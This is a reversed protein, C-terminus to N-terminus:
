TLRYKDIYPNNNRNSINAQKSGSNNNIINNNIMNSQKNNNNNSQKTMISILNSLLNNTSKIQDRINDNSEVVDKNINNINTLISDKITKEITTRNTQNTKGIPSIVKNNKIFEPNNEGVIVTGKNPIDGGMARPTIQSTNNNVINQESSEQIIQSKVPSTPLRQALKVLTDTGGYQTTLLNISNSLAIKEDQTLESRKALDEIKTVITSFQNLSKTVDDTSKVGIATGGVKKAGAADYIPKFGAETLGLAVAKTLSKTYQEDNSSMYLKRGYKGKINQETAKTQEFEPFGASKIYEKEYASPKIGEKELKGIVRIIETKLPLKIAEENALKYKEEKTLSKGSAQKAKIDKIENSVNELTKTTTDLGWVLTQNVVENGSLFSDSESLLNQFKSNKLLEKNSESQKKFDSEGKIIDSILKTTLAGAVAVALATGAVLWLQPNSLVTSLGKGIFSVVNGLGKQLSDSAFLGVGRRKTREKEDEIDNLYKLRKSEDKLADLESKDDSNGGLNKGRYRAKYLLDLQADFAKKTINELGILADLQDSLILPIDSIIEELKSNNNKVEDQYDQKQQNFLNSKLLIKDGLINLSNLVNSNITVINELLINSKNKLSGLMRKDIHNLSKEMLEFSAANNDSDTKEVNKLIQQLIMNNESFLAVNDLSGTNSEFM